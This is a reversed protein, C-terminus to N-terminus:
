FYVNQGISKWKVSLILLCGQHAPILQDKWFFM